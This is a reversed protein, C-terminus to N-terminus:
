EKVPSTPSLSGLMLFFLTFLVASLGVLFALIPQTRFYEVAYFAIDKIKKTVTDIM